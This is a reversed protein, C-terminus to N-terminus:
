VKYLFQVFESSDNVIVTNPLEYTMPTADTTVIDGDVLKIPLPIYDMKWKKLIHDLAKVTKADCEQITEPSSM